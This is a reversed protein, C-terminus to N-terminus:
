QLSISFAKQPSKTGHLQMAIFQKSKCQGHRNYSLQLNFKYLHILIMQIHILEVKSVRVKVERNYNWASVKYRISYKSRSRTNLQKLSWLHLMCSTSKVSYNSQLKGCYKTAQIRGHNSLWLPPLKTLWDIPFGKHVLIWYHVVISLNQVKRYQLRIWQSAYGQTDLPRRWHPM